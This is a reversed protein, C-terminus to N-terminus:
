RNYNKINKNEGTPVYKNRDEFIRTPARTRQEEKRNALEIKRVLSNRKAM